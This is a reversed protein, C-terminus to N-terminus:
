SKRAKQVIHMTKVFYRCADCAHDKVKVPKDEGSLAAKEDWVYGELEEIFNKCGRDIKILGSKMAVATERIGDAVDNDAKSIKFKKRKQLAAIFSAASPDVITRLKKRAAFPDNVAVARQYEQEFGDTIPKVFAEVDDVYEEDTKPVGVDRGSYYYERVAYWKRQEDRAWLLAAFANETGYDISLAYEQWSATQPADVLASAYMPYILGEALAWKGLIYRDYYVTGEYENCLSEVFSQPLFPNDFLVYNQQYIDLKPNELWKKFWHNPGEPNCTGDFRSYEKDLRSELMTFVDPNWKAIEDGYAYKISMGQIKGVANVKEAGICYVEQGFIMVTNRSNQINGIYRDTFRERMPQLVNREITASSVGLIVNLGEKDRVEYLRKVIIDAIDIFSKGSRVAGVKINWRKTARAVYEFQKESPTLDIM